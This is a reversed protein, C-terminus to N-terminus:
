LRSWSQSVMLNNIISVEVYSETAVDFDEPIIVTEPLTLSTATDGSEFIFHYDNVIGSAGAKFDIDLTEKEGFVHLVNPAIVYATASDSYSIQRAGNYSTLDYENDDTLIVQGGIYDSKQETTLGNWNSLTGEFVKKYKDSVSIVDEADKVISTGDVAVSGMCVKWSYTPTAEGDSVCEYFYGHNYTATTTGVYQVIQGLNDESAVPMTSFQLKEQKAADLAARVGEVHEKTKLVNETLTGLDAYKLSM